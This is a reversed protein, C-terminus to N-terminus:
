KYYYYWNGNFEKDCTEQSAFYCDKIGETPYGKIHLCIKHYENINNLLGNVSAQNLEKDTKFIYSVSYHQPEIYAGFDLSAYICDFKKQVDKRVTSIINKWLNNEM